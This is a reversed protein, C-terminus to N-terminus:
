LIWQCGVDLGVSALPVQYLPGVSDITFMPRSTNFTVGPRLFLAAWRAPSWRARAALGVTMWDIHGSQGVVEPGSGRGTVDELALTLCPGLEFRGLTWAYCGSLEGSRRVYSAAYPSSDAAGSTQSLWLVGTLLAEFRDFRVGAGAGVGLALSPLVGADVALLPGGVVASLRTKGPRNAVPGASAIAGVTEPRSETLKAPPLEAVPPAATSPTPTSSPASGSSSPATAQSISPGSSPGSSSPSGSSSSSATADWRSDGRALLSLMVAAAGALGECSESDFARTVGSADGERRVNLSLRYRGGERAVAGVVILRDKRPPASSQTGLLRRVRAQLDEASPCTAPATWRVDVGPIPQARVEEAWALAV